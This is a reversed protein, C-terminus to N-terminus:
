FAGLGYPTGWGGQDSYRQGGVENLDKQHAAQWFTKGGLEKAENGALAFTAAIIPSGVSTGEVPIWGPEQYTDYEAVNLAVASVDNGLRLKKCSSPPQWKPKDIGTSSCGGSSEPWATETYGRSNTATALQTGGVAVVNSFSAPNYLGFGYDGSAAVYLIGPTDFYSPDGGAGTYSNSVITAGLKVAEAEATQMDAWSDTQAEILDVTCNPCIASVMEVDLDIEVGWSSSGSPYSGKIGYENYKNLTAAPLGMGSRYAAFDTAVNPNDYADVLAVTQGKGKTSSPLNYAKQLDSAGWGQYGSGGLFVGGGEVIVDCQVRGARGGNCAPRNLEILPKAGATANTGSSPVTSLGAGSCAVLGLAAVIGALLKM